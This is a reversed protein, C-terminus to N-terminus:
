QDESMSCESLSRERRERMTVYNLLDIATVVGFVMQRMKPSGDSMDAVCLRCDVCTCLMVQM